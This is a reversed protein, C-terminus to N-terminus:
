QGIKWKSYVSANERVGLTCFGNAMPASVAGLLKTRCARRSDISGYAIADFCVPIMM